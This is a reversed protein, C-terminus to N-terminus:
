SLNSMILIKFMRLKENKTLFLPKTVPYLNCFTCRFFQLIPNQAPMKTLIAIQLLNSHLLNYGKKSLYPYSLVDLTSLVAVTFCVTKFDATETPSCMWLLYSQSWLGFLQLWIFTQTPSCMWLLYSQSAGYSFSKLPSFTPSCMWLLYSQSPSINEKEEGIDHLLACGSYIPSRRGPSLLMVLKVLPLLACGSYIPSRSTGFEKLMSSNTTYSLVDLTSLVAVYVTCCLLNNGPYTPSCMWLLYSQSM